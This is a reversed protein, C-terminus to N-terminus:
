NRNGNRNRNKTNGIKLKRKLSVYSFDDIKQAESKLASFLYVLLHLRCTSEDVAPLTFEFRGVDIWLPPVLSAAPM